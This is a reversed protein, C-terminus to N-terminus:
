RGPKTTKHLPLVVMNDALIGSDRASQARANALDLDLAFNLRASAGVSIQDFGGRNDDGLFDLILQDFKAADVIPLGSRILEASISHDNEEFVCDRGGLASLDMAPVRIALFRSVTPQPSADHFSSGTVLGALVSAPASPAHLNLHVHSDSRDDHLDLTVLRNGQTFHGCHILETFPTTEIYRVKLRANAGSGSIILVGRVIKGKFIPSFAHSYCAFTGCLHSQRSAKPDDPPDHDADGPSVDLSLIPAVMMRDLGYTGIVDEAFEEISCGKLYALPRDLRLMRAWHEYVKSSRPTSRGQIWKYLSDQEIGSKPAVNLFHRYLEKQTAFGLALITLKLKPGFDRVM